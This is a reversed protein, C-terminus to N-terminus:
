SAAEAAAPAEVKKEGPFRLTAPVGVAVAGAPVDKVVVANAGVQADDGITIPGLVKAGAGIVVRNGVTPHRKGKSMTRGGLTSGHFLLVDDGIETTEGIVVGSGHDIFFRRGIVAGPHIEVGTIARIAQSMLRAPLKLAPYQWMWHTIRHVWVTHLGAYSLAVETKTRAAPDRDLATQLDERLLFLLHNLNM